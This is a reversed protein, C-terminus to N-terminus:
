FRRGRRREDSTQLSQRFRKLLTIHLQTDYHVEYVLHGNKTKIPKGNHFLQRKIGNRVRDVALDELDQGVRYELEEFTARYEADSKLRKYHAERSEGAVKAATTVSGCGAYAELFASSRSSTGKNTPKSLIPEEANAPPGKQTTKSSSM